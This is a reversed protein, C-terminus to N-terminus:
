EDLVDEDLGDSDDSSKDMLLDEMLAMGFITVIEVPLNIQKACEDFSLLVAEAIVDSRGSTTFARGNHEWHMIILGETPHDDVNPIMQLELLALSQFMIYEKKSVLEM